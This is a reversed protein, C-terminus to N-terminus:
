ADLDFGADICYFSAVKGFDFLSVKFLIKFSKCGRTLASASRHRTKTQCPRCLGIEGVNKRGAGLSPPGLSPAAVGHKKSCRHSYDRSIRLTRKSLGSLFQQGPNAAKMQPMRAAHEVIPRDLRSQNLDDANEMFPHFRAPV